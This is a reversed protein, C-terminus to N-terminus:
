SLMGLWFRGYGETAYLILKTFYVEDLRKAAGTGDNRLLAFSNALLSTDRASAPLTEKWYFPHCSIEACDNIAGFHTVYVMKM